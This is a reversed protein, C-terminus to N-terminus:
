NLRVLQKGIARGSLLGIFAGPASALGESITERYRLQGNAVLAGLTKMGEPWLDMRDDVFFGQVLLRKILLLNPRSIPRPRGDLSALLGCLAIRGFTNMHTIVADLITGGVNDFYGDVGAPCATKLAGALSEEDRHARYDVCADFGYEDVVLRCKEPGGAIGVVRAGTHKALQGAVSGVIGMAASVVFTQGSAPVIIRSCGYWGTLGPMGVAGLYASLPVRTIDVKVLDPARQVDFISYQQWGGTGVVFEGPVFGEARSAIVEGATGGLMVENLPQPPAYSKADDMYGRMYPDLSLFHNRVLIQGTQPERVPVEVLSFNGATAEGEPRSQLHVQVNMINSM